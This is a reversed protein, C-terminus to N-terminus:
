LWDPLPKGYGTMELYGKGIPKGNQSQISIPGEWYPLVGSMEAEELMAELRFIEGDLNLEWHIPYRSGSSLRKTKMERFRVKQLITKEGEKWIMGYTYHNPNRGSAESRVQFALIKRGDDLGFHVWDWGSKEKQLFQSSFERDLWLDLEGEISKGNFSIKGKGGLRPISYYYSAIGSPDKLSFGGDGQLLIPDKQRIKAELSFGSKEQIRFNHDEGLISYRSTISNGRGQYIFGEPKETFKALGPYIRVMDTFSTFQKNEIDALGIHTVTLIPDKPSTEIKFLTYQIGYDIGERTKLFGTYYWWETKFGYHPRHDDPFSFSRGPTVQQFNVPQPYIGPQNHIGFFLLSYFSISIIKKVM